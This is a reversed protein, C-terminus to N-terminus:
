MKWFRSLSDKPHEGMGGSVCHMYFASIKMDDSNIMMKGLSQDLFLGTGM